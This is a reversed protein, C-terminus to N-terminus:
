QLQASCVSILQQFEGRGGGTHLCSQNRWPRPGILSCFFVIRTESNLRLPIFFVSCLLHATLERETCGFLYVNNTGLDYLKGGEEFAQELNSFDWNFQYLSDLQDWETGVPFAAKWLDQLNRPDELYQPESEKVRKTTRTKRTAKSSEKHKEAEAKQSAVKRKTGRRM